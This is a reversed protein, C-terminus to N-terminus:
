VSQQRGIQARAALLGGVSTGVPEAVRDSEVVVENREDVM